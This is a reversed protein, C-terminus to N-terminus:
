GVRGEVVVRGNDIEVVLEVVIGCEKGEFPGVKLWLGGCNGVNVVREGPGVKGAAGNETCAEGALGETLKARLPAKGVGPGGDELGEKTSGEDVVGWDDEKFVDGGDEGLVVTVGDFEDFLEECFVVVVEVNACGLSGAEDGLASGSGEEM